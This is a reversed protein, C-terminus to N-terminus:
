MYLAKGLVDFSGYVRSIRLALPALDLANNGFSPVPELDVAQDDGAGARVPHVAPMAEAPTGSFHRAVGIELSVPARYSKGLAQEMGSDGLLRPQIDRFSIEVGRNKGGELCDLYCHSNRGPERCGIDTHRQHPLGEVGFLAREGIRFLSWCLSLRQAVKERARDAGVLVGIRVSRCRDCIWQFGLFHHHKRRVEQADDITAAFLAAALPYRVPGAGRIAVETALRCRFTPEGRCDYTICKGSSKTGGPAPMDAPLSLAVSGGATAEPCDMSNMGM